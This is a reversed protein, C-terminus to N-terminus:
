GAYLSRSVSTGDRRGIHCLSDVAMCRNGKEMGPPAVRASLQLTKMADEPGEVAKIFGMEDGALVRLTRAVVEAAPAM